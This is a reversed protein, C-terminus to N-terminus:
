PLGELSLAEPLLAIMPNLALVDADPALRGADIRRELFRHYMIALRALGFKFWWPVHPQPQGALAAYYVVTAQPSPLHPLRILGLSRWQAWDLLLWFALDEQPDSLGCLEWDLLARVQNDAIVCNSIKADGWHVRPRTAPPRTRELEDLADEIPPLPRRAGWRLFERWQAIRTAGPDADLAMGWPADVLFQFGDAQPDLRHLAVLAAIGSYWSEAQAAAPLEGFWGGAHYSPNDTPVRGAVREMVYFPSGLVASDAEYWRVKAVPVGGVEGLRSQVRAMVGLDYDRFLGNAAPGVQMVLAESRAGHRVDLLYTENSLGAGEPRAIDSIAAHAYGPRTRLWASLADRVAELDRRGGGRASM